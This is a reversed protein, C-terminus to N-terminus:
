VVIFFKQFGLGLYMYICAYIYMCLLIRRLWLFFFSINSNVVVHILKSLIISLAFIMHDWENISYLFQFFDYLSHLLPSAPTSHTFSTVTHHQTSVLNQTTLVTYHIHFYFHLTTYMLSLHHQLGTNSSYFM